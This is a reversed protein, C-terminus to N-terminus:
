CRSEPGRRRNWIYQAPLPKCWAGRASESPLCPAARVKLANLIRLVRILRLVRISSINSAAFALTTMGILFDFWNWGSYFYALGQGTLKVIIESVFLINAVTQPSCARNLKRRHASAASFALSHNPDHPTCM